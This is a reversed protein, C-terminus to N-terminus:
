ALHRNRHRTPPMGFHARFTKALHASDGFGTALAIETVPMDSTELLYSAQELRLKRYHAMASHGLRARFLRNCQRESLGGRRALEWLKLPEALNDNMEALMQRLSESGRGLENYLEEQQPAQPARPRPQALADRVKAALHPSVDKEIMTQVLELTAAGGASTTLKGSRVVLRDRIAKPKADTKKVVNRLLPIWTHHATVEIGELLGADALIVPGGCLGLMDAGLRAQNQLWFRVRLDDLAPTPDDALVFIRSYDNREGIHANAKVMASSQNAMSRSSIQGGFQPLSHVRYVQRGALKNACAFSDVLAAYSLLDFGDILLLAIHISASKAPQIAM